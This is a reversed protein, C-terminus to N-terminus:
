KLRMCCFAFFLTINVKQRQVFSFGNQILNRVHAPEEIPNVTRQSVFNCTANFWILISYAVDAHMYVTM